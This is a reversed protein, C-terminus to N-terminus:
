LGPCVRLTGPPQTKWIELCDACLALLEKTILSIETHLDQNCHKVCKYRYLRLCLRVLFFSLIDDTALYRNCAIQQLCDHTFFLGKIKYM